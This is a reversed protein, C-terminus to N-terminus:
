YHQDEITVLENRLIHIRIICSGECPAGLVFPQISYNSSSYPTASKICNSTIIVITCDVICSLYVGPVVREDKVSEDHHLDEVEEVWSFKM